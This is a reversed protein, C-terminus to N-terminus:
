GYKNRRKGEQIESKGGSIKKKGKANREAPMISILFTDKNKYSNKYFTVSNQTGM